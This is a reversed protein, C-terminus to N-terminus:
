LPRRLLRAALNAIRTTLAAFLRTSAHRVRQTCSLHRTQHTYLSIQTGAQRLRGCTQRCLDRVRRPSLTTNIAHLASPFFFSTGVLLDGESYYHVGQLICVADLILWGRSAFNKQMNMVVSRSVMVGKTAILALPVVEKFTLAEHNINRPIRECFATLLKVYAPLAVVATSILVNEYIASGDALGSKYATRIRQEVRIRQNVLYVNRICTLPNDNPRLPIRLSKAAERWYTMHSIVARYAKRCTTGLCMAEQPSLFALPGPNNGSFTSILPNTSM